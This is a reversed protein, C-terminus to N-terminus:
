EAKMTLCDIKLRKLETCASAAAKADFGAYRARFYLREGQKFQTTVPARNALLQPALERASALRREAEAQSQYAGIQIHFSGSSVRNPQAAALVPRQIPPVIPQAPRPRPAAVPPGGRELNAAQAGLTSPPLGPGSMTGSVLVPREAAPSTVHMPMNGAAAWRQPPAATPNPAQAATPQDARALVEEFTATTTGRGAAPGTSPNAARPAVLVPRVRAIEIAPSRPPESAAPQATLASTAVQSVPREIRRPTPVPGLRHETGPRTQAVLLPAPRRTKETSAKVLGMNLFTRM